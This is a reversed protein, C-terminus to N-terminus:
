IPFVQFVIEETLRIYGPKFANIINFETKASLANEISM